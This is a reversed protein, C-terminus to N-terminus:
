GHAEEDKKKHATRHILSGLFGQKTGAASQHRGDRIDGKGNTANQRQGAEREQQQKDDKQQTDNM